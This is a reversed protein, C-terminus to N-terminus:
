PQPWGAGLADHRAKAAALRRHGDHAKHRERNRREMDKCDPELDGGVAM